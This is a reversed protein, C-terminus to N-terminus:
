CRVVIGGDGVETVAQLPIGASGRRPGRLRRLLGRRGTLLADLVISGDAEWHARVEYVRGLDHGSQDRVPRGILSSLAWPGGSLEV